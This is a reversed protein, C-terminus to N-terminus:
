FEVKDRRESIIEAFQNSSALYVGLVADFRKDLNPNFRGFKIIINSFEKLESIAKDLEEKYYGTYIIIDDNCQNDRFYKVLSYVEDFQLFPELGGIVIAKTIQNKMYREFLSSIKVEKTEQLSLSQNQCISIDIGLEKPCKWDCISTAIFMSTKKYDQFSEDLVDKIKIINTM